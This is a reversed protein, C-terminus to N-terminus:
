FNLEVLDLVQEGETLALIQWKDLQTCPHSIGFGVIDGVQLDDDTTLFLHQDNLEKVGSPTAFAQRLGMTGDAEIRQWWLPVPMDLDFAIDRKGAGLIALGPEPLSLVQAILAMAPELNQGGPLRSFPNLDKYHVSDYTLYAGSRIVPLWGRERGLEGLRPLVVDIYASGGVSIVFPYQAEVRAASAIQDVVEAISVVQDFWSAVADRAAQTPDSAVLGEFGIVGAAPLGVDNLRQAVDAAQEATRVGTRGGPVGVEVLPHLRLPWLGRLKLSEVTIPQDVSGGLAHALLDVGAVSDVELWVELNRVEALTTVLWALDRPDVLENALLVRQVGDPSRIGWDIVTRLQHPMAVTAAWAGQQVQLKFLDASMHTKVHPALLVGNQQCAAGMVAANHKLASLDATLLPWGFLSDSVPLPTRQLETRLWALPHSETLRLGKTRPGVQFREMEAYLADDACEWDRDPRAPHLARGPTAGTLEGARLVPVGAVLVDDIGTALTRPAEFTANDRLKEPDILVIDAVSGAQLTGRNALRFRQAARTSLHQVAEAWTWAPGKEAYNAARNAGDHLDLAQGLVQGALLRAFAGWGRPHPYGGSAEDDPVGPQAFPAYIADSGAMQAPHEFFAQVSEPSNTPPQAFVCSARLRSAVLIRVAAEAPTVGMREAAVPITLGEVWRLREGTVPDLGPVWALTTRPWLDDLTALHADLKTRNEAETLAALTADPDALPLWTPLAVMALISCGRLYPYTDFTLDTSDALDGAFGDSGLLPAILEYPGHLHSIHTGVGTVEAIRGLEAMAVPAQLEYGRMHSVHPVGYDACVQALATLEAEDAWAAPVYELGTSMGVAGDDLAQRLILGMQALEAATAPRQLGGKDPNGGMVLYRLTGHPVLHAVNVATAGDYTAMLQAMTGGTFTPHAGDIGAFYQAAWAYTRPDSPAFGVGDQGVVITTIGQRLMALQVAPDFVAAAGHVHSDIFGPLAVRGNGEVAVRYKLVAAKVYWPLAAVESEALDLDTTGAPVIGVVRGGRLHLDVPESLGVDEPVRVNSIVDVVHGM